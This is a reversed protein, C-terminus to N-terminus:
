CNKYNNNDNKNNKSKNKDKKCKGKYPCNGCGSKCEPHRVIYIIAIIFLVLVIGIILYDYWNM